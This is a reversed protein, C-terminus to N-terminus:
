EKRKRLPLPTPKTKRNETHGAWAARISRVTPLIAKRAEDRAVGSRLLAEYPTHVHRIHADVALHVKETESTTTTRGVRGSGKLFAHDLITNLSEVPMLPFQKSLVERYHAQEKEDRAKVANARSEATDEASQLVATHVNAPVRIGLPKKGSNDYVKYVLRHDQKTQSRCHRTVYVNGRPVFVYDAPMPARELCNKSLKEFPESSPWETPAKCKQPNTPNSTAVKPTTKKSKAIMLSLNEILAKKSRARNHTEKVMALPSVTPLQEEAHIEGFRNNHGHNIPSQEEAQTKRFCNHHDHNNSPREEAHIEGFHNTQGHHNAHYSEHAHPEAVGPTTEVHNNEARHGAHRKRHRHKRAHGRGIIGPNFSSREASFNPFRSRGISFDPRRRIETGPNRQVTNRQIRSREARGQNARNKRGRNRCDNRAAGARPRTPAM